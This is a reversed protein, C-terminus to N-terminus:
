RSWSQGEDGVEVWGLVWEVWRVLTSGAALLACLCLSVTRRGERGDDDHVQVLDSRQVPNSSRHDPSAWHLTKTRSVYVLIHIGEIGHRCTGEFRIRCFRGLWRGLHNKPLRGHTMHEGGGRSQPARTRRMRGVENGSGTENLFRRSM